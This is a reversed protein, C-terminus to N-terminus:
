NKWQLFGTIFNKVEFWGLKMSTLFGKGEGASYATSKFSLWFAFISGWLALGGFLDPGHEQSSLNFFDPFFMFCLYALVYVIFLVLSVWVVAHLAFLVIYNLLKM